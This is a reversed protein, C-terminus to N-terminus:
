ERLRLLVRREDKSGLTINRRAQKGDSDTAEVTYTGPPFAGLSLTDSSYTGALMDTVVWLSEFRRGEADRVQIEASGTAGRVVVEVRTGKGLTLLVDTEASELKLLESAQSDARALLTIGGHPVSRLAAVGEGNTRTGPGISIPLGNEDLVFVNGGAVPDGLDDVVMVSVSRTARLRLDTVEIEGAQNVEILQPLSRGKSQVGYARIM